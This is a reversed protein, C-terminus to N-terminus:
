GALASRMAEVVGAEGPLPEDREGSVFIRVQLVAQHLLMGLGTVVPGEWRRALPSPWPDYAVDFLPGGTGVLRVLQADALAAGGPLTAITLDAVSSVDDFGVADVRVGTREGIVALQAAREPRRAVVQVSEAGSEAVAVLASAATAGSGLIRVREAGDLGAEALARVIGGVDTNFGRPRSVDGALLLTNVAGTLEAHRDRSFAQRWAADKLPMTLALGRWTEDLDTLAAGLGAEDVRRRVFTWDLGLERYASSHLQPSRSHDIPYGWVALRDGGELTRAGM